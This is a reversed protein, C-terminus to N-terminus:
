RSQEAREEEKAGAREKAEDAPSSSWVVDDLLGADDFGADQRPIVTMTGDNELVVWNAEEPGVYGNARLYAFIEHRSIRERRMDEELLRGKHVLLRPKARVLREFWVSRSALWATSWQLVGIVTIALIVDALSVEKLLIGSAALSGVTVSIIWDFNSMQGTARKGLLRILVIIVVFLIAASLGSRLVHGASSFFTETQANM